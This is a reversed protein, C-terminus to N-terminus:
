PRRFRELALFPVHETFRGHKCDDCVLM